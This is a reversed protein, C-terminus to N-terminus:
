RLEVSRGIKNSERVADIVKLQRFVSEPSVPAEKGNILKGALDKYYPILSGKDKTFDVSKILEKKGTSKIKINILPLTDDAYISGKTGCIHWMAKGYYAKLVETEAVLGNECTIIIKFCDETDGKDLIQNLKAWVTKPKAQSVELLTDVLHVGLNATMGGNFREQIQWDTRETFSHAARYIYFPEGILGNGIAEKIIVTDPQYRVTQSVTLHKGAQQAAAIMTRAEDAHAAMPKEVLVHAGKKIATLTMKLHLQSPTAIVVMDSEVQAFMEELSAFAPINFHEAAKKSLDKDADGVSVLQLGETDRCCEAHRWGIRGLGVVSMKFTKKNAM